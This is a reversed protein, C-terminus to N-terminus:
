TQAKVAAVKRCMSALNAMGANAFQVSLDVIEAHSRRWLAAFFAQCAERTSAERVPELEKLLHSISEM